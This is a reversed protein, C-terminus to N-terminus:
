AKELEVIIRFEEGEKEARVTGNMCEVFCKVIYLGLGAGGKSRASDEKYFRRFIKDTEIEQVTSSLITMDIHSAGALEELRFELRGDSYKVANSTLNQIVRALLKRDAMVYINEDAQLFVPEIGRADIAPSEALIEECILESINVREPKSEVQGSEILSLEFFDNVLRNLYKARELAIDLNQLIEEKDTSKKAVQLYGIISTLPTRMDHSIMSVSERLMKEEERNEAKIRLIRDYLNNIVLVLKQLDRDIFDVCVNSEDEKALLEETIRRMEKKVLFLKLCLFLIIGALLITTVVFM